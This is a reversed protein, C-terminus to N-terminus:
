VKVSVIQATHLKRKKKKRFFFCVYAQIYASFYTLSAFYFAPLLAQKNVPTDKYNQNRVTTQWVKMEKDRKGENM